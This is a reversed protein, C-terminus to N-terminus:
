FLVKTCTSKEKILIPANDSERVLFTIDHDGNWVMKEIISDMGFYGSEKRTSLIWKVWVSPIDEEM